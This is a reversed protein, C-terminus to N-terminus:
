GTVAEPKGQGAGSRRQRQGQSGAINKQAHMADLTFLKGVLGLERVLAQFAPIENTKDPIEVHALILQSDTAFVSLVEAARKDEMHDFSGRLAKGDCALYDCGQALGEAVAASYSRFATELAERRTGQIISRVRTYSPACRWSLGLAEQLGLWHTDMFTHISRYSYAGSLLALIAAMLVGALEFRRGQGRRHDPIERLYDLLM